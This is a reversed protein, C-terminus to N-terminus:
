DPRKHNAIISYLKAHLKVIHGLEREVLLSDLVSHLANMRKELYSAAQDFEKILERAQKRGRPKIYFPANDGLRELGTIIKRFLFHLRLYTIAIVLGALLISTLMTYINVKFIIPKILQATTNINIHSSFAENEIAGESLKYILFGASAVEVLLLLVFGVIFAIQFNNKLFFPKRKSKNM